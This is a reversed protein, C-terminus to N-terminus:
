VGQAGDVYKMASGTEVYDVKPAGLPASTVAEGSAPITFTLPPCGKESGTAGSFKGDPVSPASAPISGINLVEKPLSM